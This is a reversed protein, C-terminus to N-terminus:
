VAVVINDQVREFKLRSGQLSNLVADMARSKDRTTRAKGSLVVIGKESSVSLTSADLMTELELANEACQMLADDQYKKKFLSLM